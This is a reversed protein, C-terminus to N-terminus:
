KVMHKGIVPLNKLTYLIKVNAEIAAFLKKVSGLWFNIPPNEIILSPCTPFDKTIITPM